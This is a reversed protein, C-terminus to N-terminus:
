EIYIVDFDQIIQYVNVDSEYLDLENEIFIDQIVVSSVTGRFRQLAARVQESVPEVDSYNKAWSSVQYRSRTVAADAGMASHRETSIKSFTVCPYTVNQPLKLPHIRAAVLASLGAFESLRTYIAKEISM